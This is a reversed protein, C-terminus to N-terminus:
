ARPQLHTARGGSRWAALALLVFFATTAYIVEHVMLVAGFLRPAVARADLWALPMACAAAALALSALVAYRRRDDTAVAHLPGFPRAHRYYALGLLACGVLTSVHQVVNFVRYQHNFATFLPTRLAEVHQVFFRGEHTFADWLAHTAAGFLLAVAALTLSRPAFADQVPRVALLAQRHPAPLLRAVPVRLWRALCLLLLGTPVCVLLLGPPTHAFGAVDFLGVYYGFDPSMSGIALAAFSLGGPGSRRLLPLVAAPHAFTWPM